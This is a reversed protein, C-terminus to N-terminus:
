RPPKKKARKARTKKPIASRTAALLENSLTPSAKKVARALVLSGVLESWFRMAKERPLNLSAALFSVTADIGDAFAKQVAAGERAADSALAAMTCGSGCSDRHKASVYTTAFATGDEGRALLEANDAACAELNESCAAAALEEKSAFHNYFGGHTFGAAKMVDALGVGDFGHERFLRSAAELIRARNDEAQEKTVRM